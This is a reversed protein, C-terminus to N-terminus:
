DSDARPESDPSALLLVPMPAPPRRRRGQTKPRRMILLRGKVFTPLLTDPEGLMPDSLSTAIGAKRAVDIVGSLALGSRSPVVIMSENASSAVALAAALSPDDPGAAVAVIPGSMEVSLTPVLLVPSTTRFAADILQGFQHTAREIPSKPEIIVIIDDAGAESSIAQAASGRAMKFSATPRRRGTAETFLRQANRAAEAFDKELQEASLARWRGSRFERASPLDALGLVNSDEFFTGVLDVGLLEALAATEAVAPYDQRSHPLGVIMRKFEPRPKVM